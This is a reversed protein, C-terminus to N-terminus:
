IPSLSVSIKWPSLAVFPVAGQGVGLCKTLNGLSTAYIWDNVDCGPIPQITNLSTDRFLMMGLVVVCHGLWNSIGLCNIRLELSVM